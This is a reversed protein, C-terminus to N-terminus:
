AQAPAADAVRYAQAFIRAFEEFSTPGQSPKNQPVIRNDNFAQQMEIMLDVISEKMGVGLMAKKADEAPLQVYKLYPKSIASGLIKTAENLTLPKPGVFEVVSTGTFALADLLSAAKAGIDRTTVMLIQLDGRIPSANVGQQKITPISWLQNEMFYGPRLHLVNLIVLASPVTASALGFTPSTTHIPASVCEATFM